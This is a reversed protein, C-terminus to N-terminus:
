AEAEVPRKMKARELIADVSRDRAALPAGAVAAVMRDRLAEIEASAEASPAYNDIAASTVVGKEALLRETVAMRDRMIWVESLLATIMRGLDDINGENLYINSM